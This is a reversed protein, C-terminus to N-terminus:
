TPGEDDSGDDSSDDDDGSPGSSASRGREELATTFWEYALLQCAQALNISPQDAAMPIRVRHQCLNLEQQSLGTKENGLVVAVRRGLKTLELAKRAAARPDLLGSQGRRATTAFACETGRLADALNSVVRASELVDWARVAMKFAMEHEPRALRSPNVLVLETIGMTKIARAAAGVNEPYHPAVLVFRTASTLPLVLM